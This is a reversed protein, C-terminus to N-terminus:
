RWTCPHQILERFDKLRGVAGFMLNYMRHAEDFRSHTAKGRQSQCALALPLNQIPVFCGVSFLWSSMGDKSLQQLVAGTQLLSHAPSLSAAQERRHLQSVQTYRTSDCTSNCDMLCSVVSICAVSCAVDWWLPRVRLAYITIFLVLGQLM